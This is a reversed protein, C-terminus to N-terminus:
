LKEWFQEIEDTRYDREKASIDGIRYSYSLIGYIEFLILRTTEISDEFEIMQEKKSEILKDLIIMRKNKNM